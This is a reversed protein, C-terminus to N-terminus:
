EHKERVIRIREADHKSGSHGFYGLVDWLVAEIAKLEDQEDEGRVWKKGLEDDPEPVDLIYGSEVKEITIRWGEM